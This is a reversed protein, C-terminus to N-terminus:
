FLTGWTSILVITAMVAVLLAKTFAGALRGILASWGIKRAQEPDRGQRVEFLYGGLFGGVLGLGIPPLIALIVSGFPGGLVGIAGLLPAVAGGLAAGAFGGVITWVGTADSAGSRKVGAFALAQEMMEAGAAIVLLILLVWWPPATWGQFASYVVADALVIVGGPMGVLTGAIAAPLILVFLLKGVFIAVATLGGGVRTWFGPGDAEEDAAASEIPEGSADESESSGEAAPEPAEAEETGESPAPADATAIEEGAPPADPQEDSGCGPLTAALLAVGAAILALKWFRGSM